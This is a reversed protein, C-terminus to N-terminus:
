KVFCLFTEFCPKIKFPTILITSIFEHLEGEIVREMRYISIRHMRSM